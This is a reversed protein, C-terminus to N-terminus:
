KQVFVNIRHFSEFYRGDPQRTEQLMREVIRDRFNSRDQERLAPLFPVLNPQDIWRIIDRASDFYRDANEEWIRIEHFLFFSVIRSYERCSPMYWPWDFHEFQAAFPQQNMVEKVVRIFTACNGESAFNFRIRGGPKLIDWLRALLREHDHIWHLAANSFILDFTESFVLQTIDMIRFSLNPKAFNQATEIMSKSADIGIVLGDPVQEALQATLAGDGCGLDLITEDGRFRLESIIRTGWEKQHKSAKAYKEGDFEYAM